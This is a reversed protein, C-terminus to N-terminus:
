DLGQKGQESSIELAVVKRFDSSVGCRTRGWIIRHVKLFFIMREESDPVLNRCNLYPTVRYHDHKGSPSEQDDFHSDEVPRDRM